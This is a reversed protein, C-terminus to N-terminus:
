TIGGAQLQAIYANDADTYASAVPMAVGFSLVAAGAAGGLAVVTSRFM